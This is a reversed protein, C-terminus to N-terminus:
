FLGYGRKILFESIAEAHRGIIEQEKIMEKIKSISFCELCRLETGLRIKTAEEKSIPKMSWVYFTHPTGSKVEQTFILEGRRLPIGLEENLERWLTEEPTTEENEKCGGPLKWKWPKPKGHDQVLIIKIEDETGSIIEVIGYCAWGGRVKKSM